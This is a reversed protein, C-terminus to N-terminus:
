SPPTGAPDSPKDGPRPLFVFGVLAFVGALAATKLPLSLWPELPFREFLWKGAFLLAPLLLFVGFLVRGQSNEVPGRRARRRLWLFGIFLCIGLAVKETM